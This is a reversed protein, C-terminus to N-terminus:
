RGRRGMSEYRANYGGAQQQQQQPPQVCVYPFFGVMGTALNRGRAWGDDFQQLVQITQGPVVTLEDNQTAQYQVYAPLTALVQEAPSPIPVPAPAFGVVPASVAPMAPSPSPVYGQPAAMSGTSPAHALLNTTSSSGAMPVSAASGNGTGNPKPAKGAAGAAAPATSAAAAAEKGHDLQVGHRRINNLALLGALLSLGAVASLGILVYTASHSPDTDLSDSLVRVTKKKATAVECEAPSLTNKPCLQPQTCVVYDSLGCKQPAGPASEENGEGSICGSAGSRWPLTRITNAYDAGLKKVLPNSDCVTSNAIDREISAARAELTSGCIPPALGRSCPDQKAAYFRLMDLCVWTKFFAQTPAGCGVQRYMYNDRYKSFYSYPIDFQPENDLFRPVFFRDFVTSNTITPIADSRKHPFNTAFYDQMNVPLYMNAFAPCITTKDMVLCTGRGQVQCVGNACPDDEEDALPSSTARPQGSSTATRRVTTASNSVASPTTASIRSSASSATPTPTQSASSSVASPTTASIRSSASSASSAPPMVQPAAHATAALLALAAVAALVLVSKTSSSTSRTPTSRRM